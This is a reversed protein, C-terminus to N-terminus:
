NKQPKELLNLRKRSTAGRGTRKTPRSEKKRKEVATDKEGSFWELLGRWWRKYWIPEPGWVLDSPNEKLYAALDAAKRAAEGADKLLQNTRDYLEREYIFAHAAGKGERIQLSIDSINELGDNLKKNSDRLETLLGEAEVMLTGAQESREKIQKSLHSALDGIESVAKTITQIMELSEVKMQSMTPPVQGHVTAGPELDPKAPSGPTFELYTEGLMGKSDVVLKADEKIRCSSNINLIARIIQNESDWSVSQVAGVTYGAVMVPTGAQIGGGFPFTANIIYFNGRMAFGHFLYIMLLLLILGVVIFIGVRLELRKDELEM